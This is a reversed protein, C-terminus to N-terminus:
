SPRKGTVFKCGPGTRIAASALPFVFSHVGRARHRDSHYVIDALAQGRGQTKQKRLGALRHEMYGVESFVRASSARDGAVVNETIRTRDAVNRVM